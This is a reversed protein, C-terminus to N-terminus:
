SQLRAQGCAVQSVRSQYEEYEQRSVHVCWNVRKLFTAELANLEKLSMGCVKAYYANSYYVDDNFKAAIVLSAALVRHISRECVHFEPHLKMIRDVYVLATVLCPESCKFHTFLRQIYDHISIQPARASHFPTVTRSAKRGSALSVVSAYTVALASLLRDGTLPAQEKAPTQVAEENSDVEMDIPVCAKVSPAVENEM